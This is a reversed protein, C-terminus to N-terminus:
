KEQLLTRNSHHANHKTPLIHLEWLFGFHDAGWQQMEDSKRDFYDDAPIFLAELGGLLDDKLTVFANVVSEKM